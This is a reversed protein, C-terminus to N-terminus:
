YEWMDHEINFIEEKIRESELLADLGIMYDTISRNMINSEMIIQSVFMRKEFVGLFSREQANNKTFNAVKTNLLVNRFDPYYIWFVPHDEVETASGGKTYVTFNEAVPALGIIRVDMVSRKKDFFWEEKVLWKTISTRDWPDTETELFVTDGNEYFEIDGSGDDKYKPTKSAPEQGITLIQQPTKLGWDFEKGPVIYKPATNFCDLRNVTSNSMVSAGGGANNLQNRANQQLSEMVVDILSMKESDLFQRDKIAPFYFHHNM